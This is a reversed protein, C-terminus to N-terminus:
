GWRAALPASQATLIRLCDFATALHREQVPLAWDALREFEIAAAAHALDKVVSWAAVEAAEGMVLFWWARIPDTGAKFWAGALDSATEDTTNAHALMETAPEEGLERELALCRERLEHAEHRMRGLERILELDDTRDELKATVTSAAIALGHAEALKEQLVSLVV